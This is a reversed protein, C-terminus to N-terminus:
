GIRERHKALLLDVAQSSQQGLCRGQGLRAGHIEVLLQQVHDPVEDLLLELRPRLERSYLGQHAPEPEVLPEPVRHHGAAAPSHEHSWQLAQNWLPGEVVWGVVRPAAAQCPMGAREHALYRRVKASCVRPAGRGLACPAAHVSWLPTRQTEYLIAYPDCLVPLEGRRTRGQRGQAAETWILHEERQHWSAGLDPAVAVLYVEEKHRM